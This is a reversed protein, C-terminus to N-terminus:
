LTDCQAKASWASGGQLSSRRGPSRIAKVENAFEPIAVYALELLGLVAGFKVIMRFKRWM